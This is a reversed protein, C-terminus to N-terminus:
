DEILHRNAYIEAGAALFLALQPHHDDFPEFAKKWAFDTYGKTLAIYSEKSPTWFNLMLEYHRKVLAQVESSDPPINAAYLKKLAKIITEWENFLHKMAEKSLNKQKAEAIHQKASEGYRNILYTEYEMQQEESFGEYLEKDAMTIVGQLRQVTKDITAILEKLRVVKKVLVEKHILLAGLTDFQPNEVMVLIQKLEFGLERFFMIQQLRLMQKEEYYRYGNKGVYAPRLLGIEDYFHLTRVSVNSIQALKKVTYAM